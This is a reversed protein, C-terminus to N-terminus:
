LHAAKGSHEGPGHVAGQRPQVPQFLGACNGQHSCTTRISLRPWRFARPGCIAGDGQFSQAHSWLSYVPFRLKSLLMQLGILALSSLSEYVHSLYKWHMAMLPGRSVPGGERLGAQHSWIPARLSSPSDGGRPPLAHRLLGPEMRPAPSPVLPGTPPDRPRSWCSALVGQLTAKRGPPVEHVETLPQFAVAFVGNGARIGFGMVACRYM